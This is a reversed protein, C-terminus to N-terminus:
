RCRYTWWVWANNVRTAERLRGAAEMRRWARRCRASLLPLPTRGVGDYCRSCRCTGTDPRDRNNM